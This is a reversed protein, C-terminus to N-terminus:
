QPDDSIIHNLFLYKTVENTDLIKRNCVMIILLFILQAITGVLKYDNDKNFVNM